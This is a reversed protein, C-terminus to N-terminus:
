HSGVMAVHHKLHQAAHAERIDDRFYVLTVTTCLPYDGKSRAVAKCSTSTSSRQALSITRSHVCALVAHEWKCETGGETIIVVKTPMRRLMFTTECGLGATSIASVVAMSSLFEVPNFELGFRM